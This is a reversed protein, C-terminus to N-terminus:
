AFSVGGINGSGINIINPSAITTLTDVTTTNTEADSISTFEVKRTNVAYVEAPATSITPLGAGDGVPFGHVVAMSILTLNKLYYMGARLEARNFQQNAEWHIRHEHTAGQPLQIKSVKLIKWNQVFAPSQFPSAGVVQYPNTPTGATADIMGQNWLTVPDNSIDGRQPMDHRPTMDYIDMSVAATSPNTFYILLSSKELLIKTTLGNASLPIITSIQDNIDQANYMETLINANQKGSVCRIYGSQTSNYTSTAGNKKLGRQWKTLLRRNSFTTYTGCGAQGNVNNKQKQFVTTKTPFKGKGRAQTGTPGPKKNVAKRSGFMKFTTKTMKRAMAAAYAMQAPTKKRPYVM